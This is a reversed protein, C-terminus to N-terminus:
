WEEDRQRLSKRSKGQGGIRSPFDACEIIGTERREFGSKGQAWAKGRSRHVHTRFDASSTYM